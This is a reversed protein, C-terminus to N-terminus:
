PAFLVRSELDWVGCPIFHSFLAVYTNSIHRYALGGYGGYRIHSEALLNNEWTEVQSGDAAVAKGDGWVSAIDLQNFANIVTTSAKAIKESTAHEHAALALEAASAKGRMHAAVQAPGLLTGHTFVTLVYRGLAEEIKPDSGSAPGFHHHWGLQYAIRLRSRRRNRSVRVAIPQREAERRTPLTTPSPFASQAKAQDLRTSYVNVVLDVRRPAAREFTVAIGDADEVLSTISDGFVYEVEGKTAEYLLRALDGRMVEDDGAARMGILDPGLFRGDTVMAM